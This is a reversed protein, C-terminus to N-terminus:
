IKPFENKKPTKCKPLLPESAWPCKQCSAWQQHIHPALNFNVPLGSRREVEWWHILFVSENPVYFSNRSWHKDSRRTLNGDYVIEPREKFTVSYTDHCDALVTSSLPRTVWEGHKLFGLRPFFLFCVPVHALPSVSTHYVDACAKRQRERKRKRHWETKWKKWPPGSQERFLPSATCGSIESASLSPSM